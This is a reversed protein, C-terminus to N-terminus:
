FWFQNMQSEFPCGHNTSRSAFSPMKTPMWLCSAESSSRYQKLTNFCSSSPVPVCTSYNFPLRYHCLSVLCATEILRSCEFKSEFQQILKQMCAAYQKDDDVTRGGFCSCWILFTLADTYFHIFHQNFKACTMPVSVVDPLELM